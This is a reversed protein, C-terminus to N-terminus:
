GKGRMGIKPEELEAAFLSQCIPICTEPQTCLMHSFFFNSTVLLKKKEWLPKLLQRHKIM